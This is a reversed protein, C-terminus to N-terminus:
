RMRWYTVTWTVVALLVLATIYNLLQSAESAPAPTDGGDSGEDVAGDGGGTKASGLEGGRTDLTSFQLTVSKQGNVEDASGNWVAFALYVNDHETFNVDYEGDGQRERVFTARWGTETREATANVNQVTPVSLSGAGKAYYNQAYRDYTVKSLPNNVQRGPMSLEEDHPYAYMDGTWEARDDGYEWNARWYWVNVPQGAAGMTIPPKSGGRFMIAVGDSYASPSALSTDNTPDEWDLRFAVHTENTLAKVQLEDTSGGGFPLMMQQASLDVTRSSTNEWVPASPETPVDEVIMMPQEGSIALAAVTQQGGLALGAVILTVVTAQVAAATNLPVWEPIRDDLREASAELRRSIEPLM